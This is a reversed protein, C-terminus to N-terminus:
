GNTLMLSESAKGRIVSTYVELMRATLRARDHDQAARARANSSLRMATCDDAFVECVYHALMYPADHQYTFGDWGHQVRDTVGGVYSAVCPVGLLRAESLSNSENEITSSSVFVHSELYRKCMDEECLIGTFTVCKELNYRRVVHKLYKGYYTMLLKDRLSDAKIVDKGAVYLHADPFRRLILPMAELVFHLGKIPYHGQSVLISHRKCKEIEWCHNYFSERLVENCHFYTANPNVQSTWARDFTTRGIIYSVNKIAEIEMRGRQAYLRKLGIVSDRRIMNRLTVGYVVWAPLGALVHKEIVSVLGQISLVVKVGCHNCTNVMSLAHPMETGFVHVVDPRKDRLLNDFLINHEIRQGDSDRIPTFPLYTIREGRFEAIGNVRESPFTVSLDVGDQLSLLRSLSTFWGGFPYPKEGLM